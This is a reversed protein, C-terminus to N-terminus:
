RTRVTIRYCTEQRVTANDAQVAGAAGGQGGGRRAAVAGARRCRRAGARFCAAGALMLESALPALPEEGAGAPRPMLPALDASEEASPAAGSRAFAAPLALTNTM